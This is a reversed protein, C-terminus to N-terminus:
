KASVTVTSSVVRGSVIGNQERFQYYGEIERHPLRLVLAIRLEALAQLLQETPRQSEHLRYALLDRNVLVAAKLTAAEIQPTPYPLQAFAHALNVLAGDLHGLYAAADAGAGLRDVTEIFRFAQDFVDVPLIKEDPSTAVGSDKTVAIAKTGLAYSRVGFAWLSAQVGAVIVVGGVLSAFVGAQSTALGYGVVALSAGISIVLFRRIAESEALQDVFVSTFTPGTHKIWICLALLLSSGAAVGLAIKQLPM